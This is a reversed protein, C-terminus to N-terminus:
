DGGLPGVILEKAPEGGGVGVRGAVRRDPAHELAGPRSSSASRGAVVYGARGGPRRTKEQGLGPLVWRSDAIGVSVVLRVPAAPTGRRPPPAMLDGSVVPSM